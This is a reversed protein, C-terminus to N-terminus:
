IFCYKIFIIQRYFGILNGTEEDNRIRNNVIKKM